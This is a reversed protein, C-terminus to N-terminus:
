KVEEHTPLLLELLTRQLEVNGDRALACRYLCYWPYLCLFLLGWYIMSDWNM